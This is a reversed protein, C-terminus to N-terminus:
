FKLTLVNLKTLGAKKCHDLLAILKAERAEPSVKIIVTQDPDLAATSAFIDDLKEMTVMKGQIAYVGPNTEDPPVQVELLVPKPANSKAAGPSPLNIAMHAEILEEKHTVIFFILLLFVVDIMASMPSEEAKEEGSKRKKRRAM